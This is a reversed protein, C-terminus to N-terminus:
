ATHHNNRISGAKNAVDRVVDVLRAALAMDGTEVSLKACALLYELPSWFPIRVTDPSDGPVPGPNRSADFFGAAKLDDLFIPPKPHRSLLAFGRRAHEESKSMTAIFSQENLSLGAM